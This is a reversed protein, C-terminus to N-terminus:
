AAVSPPSVCFMRRGAEALRSCCLRLRFLPVTCALFLSLTLRTLRLCSAFAFISHHYPLTSCCTDRLSAFPSPYTLFEALQCPAHYTRTEWSVGLRLFLLYLLPISASVGGSQVTCCVDREFLLCMCSLHGGRSGLYLVTTSSTSGM